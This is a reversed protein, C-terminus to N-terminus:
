EDSENSETSGDAALLDTFFDRVDAEPIINKIDTDHHDWVKKFNKTLFKDKDVGRIKLNHQVLNGAAIYARDKM